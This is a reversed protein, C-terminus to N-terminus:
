QVYEDILENSDPLNLEHRKSNIFIQIDIVLGNDGLLKYLVNVIKQLVDLYSMIM